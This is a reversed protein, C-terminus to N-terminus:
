KKILDTKLWTFFMWCVKEKYAIYSRLIEVTGDDQNETAIKICAKEMKLLQNMDILLEEIMERELLFSEAEKIVSAKLYDKFNSSPFYGLTLIREAIEDVKVTINKYLDEFKMHLEFFNKGQINWHFARIKQCYVQYSALIVDLNEAIVQAKSPEIQAYNM